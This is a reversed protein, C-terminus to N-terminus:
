RPELHSVLTCCVLWCKLAELSQLATAVHQMGALLVWLNVLSAPECCLSSGMQDSTSGHQVGFTAAVGEAPACVHLLAVIM